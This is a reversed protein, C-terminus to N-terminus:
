SLEYVLQKVIEHDNPIRWTSRTVPVADEGKMIKFSVTANYVGSNRLKWGLEKSSMMEKSLCLWERLSNLFFYIGDEKIFPAQSELAKDPDRFVRKNQFYSILWTRVSGAETGEDGLDVVTCADLLAQAVSPWKKKADIPNMFHGTAAALKVKLSRQDILNQVGGLHISGKPTELRYEPPDTKFKVIRSIDQGIIKSINEILQKRDEDTVPGDKKLQFDEVGEEAQSRQATLKAKMVTREYYDARLKLDIQHKRRFAIILNVVEQISWCANFAFTALSFDYASASTDKFDKRKMLWSAKFRPENECLVIFKDAPPEAEPDLVFGGADQKEWKVAKPVENLIVADVDDPNYADGNISILKVIKEDKKTNKTGPVRMIRSLDHVMDIDFGLANARRRFTAVFRHAMDAAKEREKDNEFKWFEKFAWWFQYGHGSHIQITPKLPIAELIQVVDAKSKPLNTKSHVTDLIDIDLWLGPIGAIKAAECRQKAPNEMSAVHVTDAVGCGVYTDAKQEKAIKCATEWSPAWSSRKGEPTWILISCNNPMTGFLTEFFREM